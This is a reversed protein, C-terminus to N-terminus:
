IAQQLCTAAQTACTAPNTSGALCTQLDGICASGPFSGAEGSPLTPPTPISADPLTPLAGADLSGVPPLAGADFSPIAPVGAEAILAGLCSRLAQQCAALASASSATTACSQAQSVCSQVGTLEEATKGSSETATWSGTEQACGALTTALSVGILIAFKM